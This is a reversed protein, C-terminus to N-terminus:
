DHTALMLLGAGAASSEFVRQREATIYALKEQKEAPPMGRMHLLSEARRYCSMANIADEQELSQQAMLLCSNVAMKLGLVRLRNRSSEMQGASIKDARYLEDLVNVAKQIQRQAMMLEKETAVAASGGSAAQAGSKQRASAEAQQIAKDLDSRTPDLQQMLRLDEALAGYLIALIDADTDMRQLAQGAEQIIEGRRELATLQSLTQYQIAQLRAAWAALVLGAIMLLLFFMISLPESPLM